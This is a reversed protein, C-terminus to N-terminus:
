EEMSLGVTLKWREGRGMKSKTIKSTLVTCEDICPQFIFDEPFWGRNRKVAENLLFAAIGYIKTLETNLKLRGRLEPIVTDLHFTPLSNKKKSTM